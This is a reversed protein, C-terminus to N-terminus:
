NDFRDEEVMIRHELEVIQGQIAEEAGGVTETCRERTHVEHPHANDIIEDPFVFVLVSWQSCSIFLQQSDCTLSSPRVSQVSGLRSKM